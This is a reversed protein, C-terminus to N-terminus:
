PRQSRSPDRSEAMRLPLGFSKMGIAAAYAGLGFFVCQGLPVEGLGGLMVNISLAFLAFASTYGALTVVFPNSVLTGFAAIVLLWAVILHAGNIRFARTSSM